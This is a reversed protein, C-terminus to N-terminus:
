IARGHNILSYLSRGGVWPMRVKYFSDEYNNVAEALLEVADGGTRAWVAESAIYRVDQATFKQHRRNRLAFIVIQEILTM